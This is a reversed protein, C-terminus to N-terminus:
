AGRARLMELAREAHQMRERLSPAERRGRTPLLLRDVTVLDGEGELRWHETEALRALRDPDFYQRAAREDEAMIAYRRNFTVAGPFEVRAGAPAPLHQIMWNMLRAVTGEQDVQPVLSFRPLRLAPSEIAIARHCVLTTGEGQTDALDFLYFVHDGEARRSLDRIKLGKRGPRTHLAVIREALPDPQALPRFGLATAERLRAAKREAEWAMRRILLFALLGLGSVVAVPIVIHV